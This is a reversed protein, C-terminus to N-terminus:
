ASRASAWVPWEYRTERLGARALERALGSTDFDRAKKAGAACGRKELREALLWCFADLAATGHMVAFEQLVEQVGAEQTAASLMSAIHSAGRALELAYASEYYYLGGQRAKKLYKKM